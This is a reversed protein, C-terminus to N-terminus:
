YDIIPDYVREEHKVNYINFEFIKFGVVYLSWYVGKHSGKLRMDLTHSLVPIWQLSFFSKFLDIEIHWNKTLKLVFFRKM